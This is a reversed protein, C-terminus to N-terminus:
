KMEKIAPSDNRTPIHKIELRKDEYGKRKAVIRYTFHANSKGNQLEVVDFGTEGRRVYVGKCDDNLQVFVKMPHTVDVTIMELFLADLDVHARGSILAGEGFDEFWLEPSEQCYLATQGKSTEVVASKSGNCTFDGNVAMDGASYVGYGSPSDTEGWVGANVGSTATAWGFVGCPVSADSGQYSNIRGLVGLAAGGVSAGSSPAWGYIAVSSGGSVGLSWTEGYVCSGLGTNKVRLVESSSSGEVHLKASPSTIGIGVNGDSTIRMKETNGNTDFVIAKGSQSQLDLSDDSPGYLTHAVGIAGNVDLKRSPSTT